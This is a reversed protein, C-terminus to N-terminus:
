LVEFNSPIHPEGRFNVANQYIESCVKFTKSCGVTIEINDGQEITFPM